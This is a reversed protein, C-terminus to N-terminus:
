IRLERPAKPRYCPSGVFTGSHRRLQYCGKCSGNNHTTARPVRPLDIDTQLPTYMIICIHIHCICIRIYQICRVDTLSTMFEVTLNPSRRIANM